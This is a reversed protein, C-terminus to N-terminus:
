FAYYRSVMQSIRATLCPDKRPIFPISKGFIFDFYPIIMSLKIAIWKPRLQSM